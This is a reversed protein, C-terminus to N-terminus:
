QPSGAAVRSGIYEDFYHSFAAQLRERNSDNIGAPRGEIDAIPLLDRTTSTIFVEDANELDELRLAKEEVTLGEARIEHLIIDRTVGPLCGSDLPPTWIHDSHAAFINASTCESVEGRENLLIVEDFGRAQALELTVLNQAWSLMKVGRFPSAAHRSQEAVALRVGRGWNKLGTTLAILDFDHTNPGEWIGGRNRVVAVRLTAEHAGNSEILRLLRSHLYAADEPFPVHLLRADKQMRAWHREFAFLVGGAVRLTSFVGWGALVGVQGASLVADSAERIEDNHLIFRHM